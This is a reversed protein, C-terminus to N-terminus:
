RWGFPSRGTAVPEPTSAAGTLMRWYSFVFPAGGRIGGGGRRLVTEIGITAGAEGSLPTEAIVRFATDGATAFKMDPPPVINMGPQPTGPPVDRAALLMAVQKEDGRFILRLMDASAKQPNIGDQGSWTTVLPALRAYLEPTIGIVGALEEPFVFPRNQPRTWRGGQADYDKREAGNMRRLDDVDRWDLVADTLRAALKDDEVVRMFLGRLSIEQATNLDLRGSEDFVQLRVEGAPLRVNYTFGDSRWRQKIDPHTLMFMAYYVGGEALALAQAATRAYLTQDLSRRTSLAFGGAMITLVSLVWLVLMLAM